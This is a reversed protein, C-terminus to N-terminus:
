LGVRLQIMIIPYWSFGVVEAMEDSNGWEPSSAPFTAYAAM